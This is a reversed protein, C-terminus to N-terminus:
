GPIVAGYKQFWEFTESGVVAHANGDYIVLEYEKGAAELADRMRYAHDVSVRPDEKTHVILIPTNLEDAFNVASRKAYEEPLEEPSGGIYTRYVKKMDEGREEWNLVTDAIGGTVVAAKVINEADQRLVLYTMMGGRSSGLMFVQEPDVFSMQQVFEMIKLVDNVDSGGFEDEGKTGPSGRYRSGIAIFGGNALSCLMPEIDYSLNPNGGRNYIILPYQKELYDEPLVISGLVECADVQYKFQYLLLDENPVKIKSKMNENEWVKLVDPLKGFEEMDSAQILVPEEEQMQNSSSVLVPIETSQSLSSSSVEPASCGLMVLLIASLLLVFCKQTM